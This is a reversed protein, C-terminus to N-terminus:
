LGAQSFARGLGAEIAYWKWKPVPQLTMTLGATGRTPKGDVLEYTLAPLQDVEVNCSWNDRNRVTCDTFKGSPAKSGRVWYIVEHRSQSARFAYRPGAVLRGTCRDGEWKGDACEVTYITREGQLTIHDSAWILAALAGLVALGAAVQAFRRQRLSQATPPNSAASHGPRPEPPSPSEPSM